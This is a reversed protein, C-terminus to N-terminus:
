RFAVGAPDLCSLIMRVDEKRVKLGNAECKQFMWRYGHLQGSHQLQKAIFLVIDGIDSYFRRRYLNLNKLIRRLHRQSIIVGYQALSHLINSQSMGLAHFAKVLM